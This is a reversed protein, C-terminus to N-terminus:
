LRAPASTSSNTARLLAVSASRIGGGSLALGGADIVRAPHECGARVPLEPRDLARRRENIAGIEDRQMAIIAEDEFPPKALTAM